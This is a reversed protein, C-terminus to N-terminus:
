CKVNKIGLFGLHGGIGFVNVSFNNQKESPQVKLIPVHYDIDSMDLEYEFPRYHDMLEPNDM